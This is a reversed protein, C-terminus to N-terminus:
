VRARAGADEECWRGSPSGRERRGGRLRQTEGAGEAGRPKRGAGLVRRGLGRLANRRVSSPGPGFRVLGEGGGGRWNGGRPGSSGPHETAGDGPGSLGRGRWTVRVPDRCRAGGPSGARLPPGLRRQKRASSCAPARPSGRVTVSCGGAPRAPARGASRLQPATGRVQSPGERAGWATM